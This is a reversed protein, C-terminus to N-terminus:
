EHGSGFTEVLELEEDLVGALRRVGERIRDPEPLSYALRLNRTGQGDAYFGVGPVYAVRGQIARPLMAKADVGDPLTVWVYFGGTPHTWSATSPFSAALAELCADRRQRYLERFVKVQEQWPHHELFEAVVYQSLAVPCLTTAESAMILKEKVGPPALVWGVRVGAAFTKSFSGLYIVGEDARARLARLPPGDFGLLGYPNDELVLLGADACISLIEDRREEVLTIGAPNHYNPVTYLFKPRRGSATVAAITARLAEPVLGADDMEVHVVDAQYQTFTGLAGVYSPAEAIVVDHPDLFIRSVVDLAQQSGVTVVVDDPSASIGELAMVGCILERLRPDGQGGMYQLAQAGREAILKGTMDGILELPLASVSPSGGGMGIIEPRNAVAFLARIESTTMGLTREAYRDVYPDLRSGGPMDV